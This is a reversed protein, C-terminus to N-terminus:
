QTIKIKTGGLPFGIWAWWHHLQTHVAPSWIYVYPLNEYFIFGEQYKMVVSIVIVNAFIKLLFVSGVLLCPFSQCCISILCSCIRDIEDWKRRHCLSFGWAYLPLLLHSCSTLCSSQLFLNLLNLQGCASRLTIRKTFLFLMHCIQFFTCNRHINVFGWSSDQKQVLVELLTVSSLPVSCVSYSYLDLLHSAWPTILLTPAALHLSSFVSCLYLLPESHATLWASFLSQSVIFIILCTLFM